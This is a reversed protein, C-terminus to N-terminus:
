YELYPKELITLTCVIKQGCKLEGCGGGCSEAPSLAKLTEPKPKGDFWDDEGAVGLLMVDERAGEVVPVVVELYLRRDSRRKLRVALGLRFVICSGLPDVDEIAPFDLSSCSFLSDEFELLTERM